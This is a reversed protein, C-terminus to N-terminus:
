FITKTLNKQDNARKLECLIGETLLTRNFSQCVTKMIRWVRGTNNFIGETLIWIKKHYIMWMTESSNKQWIEQVELFQITQFRSTEAFASLSLKRLLQEHLASLQSTEIVFFFELIAPNKIMVKELM